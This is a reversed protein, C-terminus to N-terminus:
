YIIVRNFITNIEVPSLPRGWFSLEDIFSNNMGAPQPLSTNYYYNGLNLMQRTSVIDTTSDVRPTRYVEVGDVYSKIFDVDYVIGIHHWNSLTPFFTSYSSATANSSIPYGTTLGNAGGTLGVLISNWAPTAIWDFIFNFYNNDMSSYLYWFSVTATNSSAPSNPFTLQYGAQTQTNLPVANGIKGAALSLTPNSLTNLVPNNSNGSSDILTQSNVLASVSDFKLYAILGGPSVNLAPLPSMRRCVTPYNYEQNDIDVKIAGTYTNENFSVASMRLDFNMANSTYQIQNNSLNSNVSFDDVIFTSWNASQAQSKKGLYIKANRASGNQAIKVIADLGINNDQYHCFAEIVQSVVVNHSVSREFIAKGFSLYDPNFMSFNLEPNTFDTQYSTTACNDSTIEANTSTVLMTSQLGSNTLNACKYDPFGRLYNGPSPKGDFGEGGGRAPSSVLTLKENLSNFSINAPVSCNQFSLILASIAALAMLNFKTMNAILSNGDPKM